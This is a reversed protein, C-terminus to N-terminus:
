RRRCSPRLRRGAAAAAGTASTSRPPPPPPPPPAAGTTFASTAGLVPGGASNTAVVRYYYTTTPALGTLAASVAQPSDGAPLLAPRGDFGRAGAVDRVRVRLHDRERPSRGDGLRDRQELRRRERSGDGRGAACEATDHVLRACVAGLRLQEHRVPPLLLAHRALARHALGRRGRDHRRRHSGAPTTLGLSPSPGYEFSYSTVANNANVFGNLTVGTQGRNTPTVTSLTPASASTTTFSVPTGRRM